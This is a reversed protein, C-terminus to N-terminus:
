QLKQNTGIIIKTSHTASDVFGGIFYGSPDFLFKEGESTKLMGFKDKTITLTLNDSCGGKGINHNNISAQLKGNKMFTHIESYCNNILSNTNDFEYYMAYMNQNAFKNLNIDKKPVELGIGFSKDHVSKVIIASREGNAKIIAVGGLVKQHNDDFGYVDIHTGNVEWVGQDSERLNGNDEIYMHWTGSAANESSANIDIVRLGQLMPTESPEIEAYVFQRNIIKSTDIIGVSPINLAFAPTQNENEDEIATVILNKGILYYDDKDAADQFLINNNTQLQESGEIEGNFTHLTYLLEKSTKNIEVDIIGESIAGKYTYLDSIMEPANNAYDFIDQKTVKKSTNNVTITIDENNNIKEKLAEVLNDANTNDIKIKKIKSMDCHLSDMECGAIKHLTAGIYSAVKINGEALIKPTVKFSSKSATYSAIKVGAISFNLHVPPNIGNLTFKGNEDTIACHGKEDCVKVGKLYSAEFVGSVKKATSSGGGGCNNLLFLFGVGILASKFLGKM